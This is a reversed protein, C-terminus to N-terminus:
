MGDSYFLFPIIHPRPVAHFATISFMDNISPHIVKEHQCVYTYPNIYIYILQVYSSSDIYMVTCTLSHQLYNLTTNNYIPLRLRLKLLVAELLITNDCTNASVTNTFICLVGRHNKKFTLLDNVDDYAFFTM